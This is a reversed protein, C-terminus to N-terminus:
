TSGEFLALIKKLTAVLDGKLQAVSNEWYEKFSPPEDLLADLVDRNKAWVEWVELLNDM